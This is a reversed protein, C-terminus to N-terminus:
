QAKDYEYDIEEILGEIEEETITGVEGGEENIHNQFHNLAQLIVWLDRKNM